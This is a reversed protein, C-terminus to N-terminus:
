QIVDDLTNAANNITEVIEDLLTPPPPPPPDDDNDDTKNSQKSSSSKDSSTSSTSPRGNGRPKTEKQCERKDFTQLALGELLCELYAIQKKQLRNTRLLRKNNKDLKTTNKNQNEIVQDVARQLRRDAAIEQKREHERDASYAVFLMGISLLVSVFITVLMLSAFHFKAWEKLNNLFKM